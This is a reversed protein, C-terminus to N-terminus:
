EIKGENELELLVKHALALDMMLLDSIELISFERDESKLLESIAKKAEELSYEKIELTEEALEFTDINEVIRELDSSKYRTPIDLFGEMFINIRQFDTIPKVIEKKSIHLTPQCTVTDIDEEYEEWSKTSPEENSTM